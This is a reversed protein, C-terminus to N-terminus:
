KLEIVDVEIKKTTLYDNEFVDANLSIAQFYHIPTHSRDVARETPETQYILKLSSGIVEYFILIIPHDTNFEGSCRFKIRKPWSPKEEVLSLQAFINNDYDPIDISGGSEQEFDLINPGVFLQKQSLVHNVDFTAEFKIDGAEAKLRIHMKKTIKYEFEFTHTCTYEISDPEEDFILKHEIFKSLNNDLLLNITVHVMSGVLDDPVIIKINTIINSSNMVIDENRKINSYNSLINKRSTSMKRLSLNTNQQQTWDNGM